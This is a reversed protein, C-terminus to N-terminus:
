ADSGGPTSAKVVPGPRGSDKVVELFVDPLKNVGTYSNGIFLVRQPDEGFAALTFLLSLALWSMPAFRMM